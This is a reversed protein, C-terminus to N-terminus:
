DALAAITPLDLDVQGHLVALRDTLLGSLKGITELLKAAATYQKAGKAEGLAEMLMAMYKGADIEANERV